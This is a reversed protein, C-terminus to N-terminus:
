KYLALFPSLTTKTLVLPRLELRPWLDIFGGQVTYDLVLSSGDVVKFGGDSGGKNEKLLFLSEGVFVKNTNKLFSPTSSVLLSVRELLGIAKISCTLSPTGLALLNSKERQSFNLFFKSWVGRLPGLGYGLPIRIKSKPCVEKASKLHRLRLLKFLGKNKSRLLKKVLHARMRYTQSLHKSSLLFSKKKLKKIRKARPLTQLFLCDILNNFIYKKTLALARKKLKAKKKKVRRVGAFLSAL